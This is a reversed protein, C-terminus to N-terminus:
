SPLTADPYLLRFLTDLAEGARPGPSILFIRYDIEHVRGAKVAALSSWTPDAKLRDSITEDGQKVASIAFIVDPDTALIAETSLKAYGPFRGVTPQGEAANRGGLLQNLDGVYSAPTAAFFDDPTGNVILVNPHTHQIAAQLQALRDELASAASEGADDHGTALGVLRLARPVDAFLGAGVFMMPAGITDAQDKLEPQIQSDAIVVDPQLAIIKEINPQYSTGVDPVSQAEPPYDASSARGVVTGGVAYVLEVTTPSLAVVKGPNRPVTVERGLFDTLTIGDAIPTRTARATPTATDGSSGCAASVPALCALFLALIVRIRIM